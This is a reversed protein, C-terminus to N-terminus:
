DNNDEDDDFDDPDIEQLGYETEILAATSDAAVRIAVATAEMMNVANEYQDKFAEAVSKWGEAQYRLYMQIRHNNEMMVGVQKNRYSNFDDLSAFSFREPKGEDESTAEDTM